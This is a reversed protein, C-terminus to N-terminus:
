KRQKRIAELQMEMMEIYGEIVKKKRDDTEKKAMERLQEINKAYYQETPDEPKHHNDDPNDSNAKKQAVQSKDIAEIQLELRAIDGELIKRRREDTEGPLAARLQDIQKKIQQIQFDAISGRRTAQKSGGPPPANSRSVPREWLNKGTAASKELIYIHGHNDRNQLGSPGAALYDRITQIDTFSVKGSSDTTLLMSADESLSLSKAELDLNIARTPDTLSVITVPNGYTHILIGQTPAMALQQPAVRGVTYASIISGKHLDICIATASNNDFAVATRGDSDLALDVIDLPRRDLSALVYSHLQKGDSLNWITLRTPEKRRSSIVALKDAESNFRALKADLVTGARLSDSGDIVRLVTRGSESTKFAKFRDDRSVVFPALAYEDHKHASWLKKPTEGVDWLTLVTERSMRGELAIRQNGAFRLSSVQACESDFSAVEEGTQTDCIMITKTSNIGEGVLAAKHGDESVAAFSYVSGPSSSAHPSVAPMSQLRGKVISVAGLADTQRFFLSIVDGEVSIADILGNPGGLPQLGAKMPALEGNIAFWSGGRDHLIYNSKIAFDRNGHLRKTAVGDIYLWERKQDEPNPAFWYARLDELFGFKYDSDLFIPGHREGDVFLAGKGHQFATFAFRKSDPSFKIQGVQTFPGFKEGDVHVWSESRIDGSVSIIRTGDPSLFAQRASQALERGDFLVYLVLTPRVTKTLPHRREESKLIICVFHEGSRSFQLSALKSGYADSYPGYTKGDVIISYTPQQHKPAMPSKPHRGAFAFHRGNASWLFELESPNINFPGFREGNVVISYNYSSDDSTQTPYAYGDGFPAPIVKFSYKGLPAMGYVDGLFKNDRMVRGKPPRRSDRARDEWLIKYTHELDGSLTIREALEPGNQEGADRPAPDFTTTGNELIAIGWVDDRKAKFAVRTGEKNIRVPGAIQEFTESSEKDFVVRWEWGNRVVCFFASGDESFGWQWSKNDHVSFEDSESVMKGDSYVTYTRNEESVYAVRKGKPSVRSGVIRGRVEGSVSEFEWTATLPPFREGIQDEVPGNSSIVIAVIVASLSM